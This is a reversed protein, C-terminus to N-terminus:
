LASGDPTVVVENWAPLAKDLETRRFDTLRYKGRRRVKMFWDYFDDSKIPRRGLDRLQKCKEVWGAQKEM